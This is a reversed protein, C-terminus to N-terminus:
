GRQLSERTKRVAQTKKGFIESERERGKMWPLNVNKDIRGCLELAAGHITKAAETLGMTKLEQEKNQVTEKFKEVFLELRLKDTDVNKGPKGSKGKFLPKRVNITIQKPRHDSFSDERIVKIDKM